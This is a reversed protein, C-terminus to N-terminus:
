FVNFLARLARNKNRKWKLAVNPAVGPATGQYALRAVAYRKSISIFIFIFNGAATHVAVPAARGAAADAAVQVGVAAVLARAAVASTEAVVVVVVIAAGAVVAAVARPCAPHHFAQQFMAQLNANTLTM